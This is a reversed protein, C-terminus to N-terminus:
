KELLVQYGVFVAGILAALWSLSAVLKQVGEIVSATLVEGVFGGTAVSTAGAFVYLTGSLALWNFGKEARSRFKAFEALAVALLIALGIGALPSVGDVLVM